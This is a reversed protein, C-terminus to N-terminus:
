DDWLNDNQGSSYWSHEGEDEVDFDFDEDILDDPKADVWPTQSEIVLVPPSTLQVVELVPKIYKKM